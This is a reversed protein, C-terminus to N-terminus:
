EYATVAKSTAPFSLPFIIIDMVVLVAVTEPWVTEAVSQEFEATFVAMPLAELPYVTMTGAVDHVHVETVIGAPTVKRPPSPAASPVAVVVIVAGPACMMVKDEPDRNAPKEIIPIFLEPDVLPATSAM